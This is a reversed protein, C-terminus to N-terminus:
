LRRDDGFPRKIRDDYIVTLAISTKGIGGAYILAVPALHDALGIAEEILEDHGFFIRPQPPQSEGSSSIRSSLYM